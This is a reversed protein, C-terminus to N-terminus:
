SGTWITPGVMLEPPYTIRFGSGDLGEVVAAALQNQGNADFRIGGWPMIMQTAPTSMKRLSARIAAPQGSGAGDIAAALTLTATFANSADPTMPLGFQREYLETVPKAVPSRRAFEASWSATRLVAPGPGGSLDRPRLAAFAPGVGIVPARKSLEGTLDAVDLVTDPAGAVALVVDSRLRALARAQDRRAAATRGLQVQSVIAYGARDALERLRVAGAAGRAGPEAVIAVRAGAGGDLRGQLMGFVTEEVMRDTPGTRFYWDLGLETLFDATSAADLLPVGLRQAESGVAAAVDASDAAVVAVAGRRGVLAGVQSAAETPSGETRAPVVTLTAGGLRPLGTGGALPLALEPYSRNVVDVAFRAGRLADADAGSGASLFGIVLSTPPAAANTGSCGALAAVLLITLHRWRRM